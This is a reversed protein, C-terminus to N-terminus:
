SGAHGASVVEGPPGSRRVAVSRVVKGDSELVKFTLGDVTVEEGPVPVRGLRSIVLGGVTVTGAGTSREPLGLRAALEHRPTDGSVQLV